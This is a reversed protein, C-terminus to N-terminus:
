LLIKSDLNSKNWFMSFGSQFCYWVPLLCELWDIIVFLHKPNPDNIPISRTRSPYNNSCCLLFLHFYWFVSFACILSEPFWILEFPPLGAASKRHGSSFSRKWSNKSCKTPELNIMRPVRIRWRTRLNWYYDTNPRLKSYYCNYPLLPRSRFVMM